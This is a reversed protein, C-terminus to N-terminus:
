SRPPVAHWVFASAIFMGEAFVTAMVAYLVGAAGGYPAAVIALALGPLIPGVALRGIYSGRRLGRAGVSTAFLSGASAIVGGILGIIAASRYTGAGLGGDGGSTLTGLFPLGAGIILGAVVSATGVAAATRFVLSRRKSSRESGTKPASM